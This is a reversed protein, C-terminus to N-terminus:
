ATFRELEDLSWEPTGGARSAVLAGLRNAFDGTRAASWGQHIGHLFAASFADGAGVADVVNVRYGACDARDQGIRVSCGNEARTIAAAWADSDCAPYLRAEEHNVKVCAAGACLERVLDATNGGRRLNVDYFCQARSLQSRLWKVQARAQPDMQFLTGFYIWKPGAAAIPEFEAPGISLHDYAAPRHITFDPQGASDLQVVVRGTAAGPVIQIFETELGLRAAQAIAAHGLEDDGVASLFLARHGLRHANVAFNFPAGGLRSSDPFIDWLIEGISVITMRQEFVCGIMPTFKSISPIFLKSKTSGRREVLM